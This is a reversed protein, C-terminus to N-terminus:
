CEHKDWDTVPEGCSSCTALETVTNAEENWVLTTSLNEDTLTVTFHDGSWENTCKFDVGYRGVRLEWYKWKGEIESMEFSGVLDLELLQIFANDALLKQAFSINNRDTDILEIAVWAPSDEGTGTIQDYVKMGGSMPPNPEAVPYALSGCEPCEGAPVTSGPDLREALHHIEFLPKALDDENGEWPCNGCQVKTM